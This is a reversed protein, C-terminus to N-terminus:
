IVGQNERWVPYLNEWVHVSNLYNLTPLIDNHEHCYSVFLDLSQVWRSKDPIWCDKYADFLNNSLKILQIKTKSDLEESRKNIKQCHWLTVLKTLEPDKSLIKQEVKKNGWSLYNQEVFNEPLFRWWKKPADKYKGEKVTLFTSLSWTYNWFYEDGLLVKAYNDIALCIDEVGHTKLNELIARTMDYTLNRHSHWNKKGKFTNWFDFITKVDNQRDLSISDLLQSDYNNDEKINEEINEINNINHKLNEKLGGLTEKLVENSFDLSTNPNKRTDENSFDLSTNLFDKIWITRSNGKGKRTEIYGQKELSSIWTSITAETVGYLSSFYSNSAWCYGKEYCLFNIEGYLLKANPTLQKDSNVKAPIIIYHGIKNNESKEV